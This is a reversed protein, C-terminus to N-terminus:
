HVHNTFVILRLCLFNLRLLWIVSVKYQVSANVYYLLVFASMGPPAGSMVAGLHFVSLADTSKDEPVGIISKCYLMDSVDGVKIQLDIGNSNALAHLDFLYEKPKCIDALILETVQQMSTENRLQKTTLIEKALVQGLFGGGGTIVVKM